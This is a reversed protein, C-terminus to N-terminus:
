EFGFVKFFNKERAMNYFNILDCGTQFTRLWSIRAYLILRYRTRRLACYYIPISSRGSQAMLHHPFDLVESESLQGHTWRVPIYKGKQMTVVEDYVREMDVRDRKKHIDYDISRLMWGDPTWVSRGINKNSYVSPSWKMYSDYDFGNSQASVMTEWADIHTSLESFRGQEILAKCHTNLSRFHFPPTAFEYIGRSRRKM